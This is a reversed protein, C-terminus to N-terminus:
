RQNRGAIGLEWLSWSVRERGQASVVEIKIPSEARFVCMQNMAWGNIQPSCETFQCVEFSM